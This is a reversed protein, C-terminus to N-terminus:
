DFMIHVKRMYLLGEAVLGPIGFEVGYGAHIYPHLLGAMFRSLMLPAKGNKGPVFNADKSMVYKELM